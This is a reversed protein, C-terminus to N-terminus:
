VVPNTVGEKKFGVTASNSLNNAIVDLRKQENVM